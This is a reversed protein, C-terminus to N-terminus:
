GAQMEARQTAGLSILMETKARLAQTIGRARLAVAEAEIETVKAGAYEDHASVMADLQAETCRKNKPDAEWEERLALRLRAECRERGLKARLYEEQARAYREGWLALHHPASAYEASLDHEDIEVVARVDAAITVDNLDLM